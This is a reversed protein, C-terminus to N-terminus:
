AGMIKQNVPGALFTGLHEFHKSMFSCIDITAQKESDAKVTETWESNTNKDKLIVNYLNM